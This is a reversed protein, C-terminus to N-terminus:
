RTPSILWEARSGGPSRAPETFFESLRQNAIGLLICARVFADANAPLPNNQSLESVLQKITDRLDLRSVRGATKGNGDAPNSSVSYTNLGPEKEIEITTPHNGNWSDGTSHSLVELIKEVNTTM